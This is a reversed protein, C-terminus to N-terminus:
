SYTSIKKKKLGKIKIKERSPILNIGTYTKQVDIKNQTVVKHSMPLGSWIRNRFIITTFMIQLIVKLITM